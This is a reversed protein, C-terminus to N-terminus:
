SGVAPLNFGYVGILRSIQIQSYGERQLQVVSVARQAVPEPPVVGKFRTKLEAEQAATLKTTTTAM